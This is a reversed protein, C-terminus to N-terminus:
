SESWDVRLSTVVPPPKRAAMISRCGRGVWLRARRVRFTQLFIDRSVFLRSVTLAPVGATPSALLSFNMCHRYYNPVLFRCINIVSYTTDLFPGGTLSPLALLGYCSSSCIFNGGTNMIVSPVWRSSYFM